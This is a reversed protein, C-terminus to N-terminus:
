KSTKKDSVKIWIRGKSSLSYRNESEVIYFVHHRNGIGGHWEYNTRIRSTPINELVFPVTSDSHSLNLKRKKTFTTESITVGKRKMFKLGLVSASLKLNRVDIGCNGVSTSSLM